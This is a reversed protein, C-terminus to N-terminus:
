SVSLKPPSPVSSSGSGGGAFNCGIQTVIGDWAGIHCPSGSPTGGVRGAQFAPGSTVVAALALKGVSTFPNVLSSVSHADLGGIAARWAAFSTVTQGPIGQTGSPSLTAFKAAGLAGYINYDCIAFADPNTFMYGYQAVANFGNDFMLNNYYSLGRMGPSEEFWAVGCGNLASSAIMTNNYIETACSWYKQGTDWTLDIWTGGLASPSDSAGGAFSILINHHISTLTGKGGDALFGVIPATYGSGGPTTRTMDIYNYAILTNWQTAEKGHLGGSNIITNYTIQSGSTGSGMGWHYLAAFHEGDTWGYNDHIYNNTFIFNTASMLQVPCCNQGSAVTCNQASNGTIECNKVVVNPPSLNTGATQGITLCWLSAGTLVLGDITLYGVNGSHGIMSCKNSNGGGFYGNDNAKIIAARPSYNGQSDCSAIYTSSSPTGGPIDLAINNFDSGAATMLASVGYTGAILGIRKGGIKSYNPSSATLSTIAWPRALTGPNSDSGTPSIYYDFTVSQADALPPLLLGAPIALASVRLFERRSTHFGSATTLRTIRTM